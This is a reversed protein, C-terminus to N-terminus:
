SRLLDSASTVLPMQHVLTNGPMAITVVTRPMVSTPSDIFSRLSGRRRRRLRAPDFFFDATFSVAHAGVAHGLAGGGPLIGNGPLVGDEADVAEVDGEGGVAAVDMRDLVQRKRHCGALHQRDDAFGTGALGDGRAADQPQDRLRRRRVARHDELAVVHQGRRLGLQPLQAARVHGHHELLRRRREVRDERDAPLDCLAQAGVIRLQPLLLDPYRTTLASSSTPM